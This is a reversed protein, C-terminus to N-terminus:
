GDIIRTARHTERPPNTWTYLVAARLCCVATIQLKSFANQFGFFTKLIGRVSAPAGAAPLRAVSIHGVTPPPGWPASAVGAMPHRRLGTCNAGEEKSNRQRDNEPIAALPFLLTRVTCSEPKRRQAGRKNRSIAWPTVPNERAEAQSNETADHLCILSYPPTPPRPTRIM